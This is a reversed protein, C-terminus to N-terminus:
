PAVGPPSPVNPYAAPQGAHAVAHGHLVAIRAGEDRLRWCFAHDEHLLARGDDRQAFIDRFLAVHVRGMHRFHLEDYHRKWLAEIWPRRVLMAGCGAFLADGDPGVITEFRTPDKRVLYPAVAAPADLAWLAKVVGPGFTVDEDRMLWAECATDLFALAMQARAVPLWPNDETICVRSGDAWGLARLVNTGFAQARAGPTRYCSTSVFLTPTRAPTNM